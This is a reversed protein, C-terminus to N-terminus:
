FPFDDVEEQQAVYPMSSSENYYDDIVIIERVDDIINLRLGYEDSIFQENYYTFDYSLYRTLNNLEEQLEDITNFSVIEQQKQKNFIRNEVNDCLIIDIQYKRIHPFYEDKLLDLLLEYKSDTFLNESIFLKFTTPDTVEHIDWSHQILTNHDKTCLCMLIERTKSNEIYGKSFGIEESEGEILYVKYVSSYNNLFIMFDDKYFHGPYMTSEMPKQFIFCDKNNKFMYRHCNMVYIPIYDHDLNLLNDSANGMSLYSNYVDYSILERM